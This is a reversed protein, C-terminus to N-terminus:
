SVDVRGGECRYEVNLELLPTSEYHRATLLLVARVQPGGTRRRHLLLTAWGGPRPM